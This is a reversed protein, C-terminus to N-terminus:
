QVRRNFVAREYIINRRLNFYQDFRKKVVNYSSLAEKSLHFSSSIDDSKSGLSIPFLEGTERKVRRLAKISAWIKRISSDVQEM